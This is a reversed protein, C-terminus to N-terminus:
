NCYNKEVCDISAYLESLELSDELDMEFKANVFGKRAMEDLANQNFSVFKIKQNIEKATQIVEQLNTGWKFNFERLLLNPYSQTTSEGRLKLQLLLCLLLVNSVAHYYSLRVALTRISNFDTTRFILNGLEDSNDLNM